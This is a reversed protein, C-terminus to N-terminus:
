VEGGLSVYLNKRQSLIVVAPPPFGGARSKSEYTKLILGSREVCIVSGRNANLRYEIASAHHRRKKLCGRASKRATAPKTNADPSCEGNNALVPSTHWRSYEWGAREPLTRAVNILGRPITM